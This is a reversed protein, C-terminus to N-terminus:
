RDGSQKKANGSSLWLLFVGVAIFASPEHVQYIGYFSSSLGFIAYVEKFVTKIKM